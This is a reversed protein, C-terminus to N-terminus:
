GHTVDLCLKKKFFIDANLNLALVPQLVPQIERDCIVKQQPLLIFSLLNLNSLIIITLINRM